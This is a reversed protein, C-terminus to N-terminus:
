AISSIAASRDEFRVGISLLNQDILLIQERIADIQAELVQRRLKMEAARDIDNYHM